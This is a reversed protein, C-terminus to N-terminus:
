NPNAGSTVNLAYGDAVVSSAATAVTTVAIDPIAASTDFSALNDIAFTFAPNAEGYERSADDATITLPRPLINLTGPGFTLDYNRATAGLITINQSGVGATTPSGSFQEQTVVDVSDGNVLGTASLTFDPDPDGYYRSALAPVIFLPAKNVT